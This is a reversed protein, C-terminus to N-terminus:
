ISVKIEFCPVQRILFPLVVWYKRRSFCKHWLRKKLLTAPRLGVVKNFCSARTPTNEQSSQSIELLVKKVSCM